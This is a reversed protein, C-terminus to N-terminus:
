RLSRLPNATAGLGDGGIQLRSAYRSRSPREADSTPRSPRRSRVHSASGQTLSNACSNTFVFGQGDRGGGRNKLTMALLYHLQATDNQDRSIKLANQLINTPLYNGFYGYYYYPQRWPPVASTRVIYLYRERALDLKSSGAWWDLAKQYYTWAQHWSKSQLRTWWFDGLSENIEAWIQHKEIQNQLGSHLATLEKRAKDEKSSDANRTGAQARWLTDALRFAVWCKEKKSLHLNKAQQYIDHAKSFSKKAFHKEARTKLSAYDAGWLPTSLLLSVMTITVFLLITKISTGQINGFMRVEM